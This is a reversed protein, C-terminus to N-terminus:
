GDAEADLRAHGLVWVQWTAELYEPDADLVRALEGQTVPDVDLVEGQSGAYVEALLQAAAEPSWVMSNM